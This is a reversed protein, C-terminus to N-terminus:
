LEILNDWEPTNRYIADVKYMEKLCRRLSDVAKGQLNNVFAYEATMRYVVFIPHNDLYKSYEPHIAKIMEFEKQSYKNM